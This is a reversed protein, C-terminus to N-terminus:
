RRERHKILEYIEHYCSMIFEAVEKKHSDDKYDGYYDDLLKILLKKLEEEINIV